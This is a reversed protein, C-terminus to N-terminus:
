AVEEILERILAAVREPAEAPAQHGVDELVVLRGRQVGDALERLLAPTCVPDYAGAVAVVPAAIQGLRDRVDFAALAGCVAVYGDDDTDRLSDLLASAREPQREVFGPAFWRAASATVLSATGGARVQAIRDRWGTEDGIRAGTCCLVAGLVRDPADLLLQLGLEGGVSDGAFVFPGDVFGLVQAALDGVTLADPVDTGASLGHGPLDFGIVRLDDPLLDVTPGWCAAGSTGLSPGVVLTTV